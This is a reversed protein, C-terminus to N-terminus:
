ILIVFGIREKVKIKFITALIMKEVTIEISIRDDSTPVFLMINQSWLGTLFYM